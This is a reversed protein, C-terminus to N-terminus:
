AIAGGITAAGFVGSRGCSGPNGIGIRRSRWRKNESL